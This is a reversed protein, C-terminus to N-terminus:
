HVPHAPAVLHRMCPPGVLVWLPVLGWIQGARLDYAALLARADAGGLLGIGVEFALTMVLWLGGILWAQGASPIPWRRALWGFYLAFLLLLLLTSWQHAALPEFWRVLLAERLGGNAIAMVLMGLWAVLYKGTM